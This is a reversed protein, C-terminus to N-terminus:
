RRNLANDRDTRYRANSPDLIISQSYDAIARDYDQKAYYSAGRNYYYDPKSPEARIARTFNSIAQDYDNKNFAGGGEYNYYWGNYMNKIQRLQPFGLFAVLALLFALIGALEACTTVKSKNSM